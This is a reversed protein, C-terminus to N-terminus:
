TWSPRSILWRLRRLEGRFIETVGGSDSSMSKLVRGGGRGGLVLKWGFTDTDKRTAGARDGVPLTTPCGKVGPRNHVVKDM